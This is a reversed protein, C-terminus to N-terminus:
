REDVAESETISHWASPSYRRTTVFHKTPGGTGDRYSVTTRHLLVDGFLEYSGEEADFSSGDSLQIQATMRATDCTRVRLGARGYKGSSEACCGYQKTAWQSCTM